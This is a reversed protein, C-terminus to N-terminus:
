RDDPPKGHVGRVVAKAVRLMEEDSCLQRRADFGLGFPNPSISESSVICVLSQARVSIQQVPSPKPEDGEFVPVLASWSYTRFGEDDAREALGSSLWIGNPLRANLIPITCEAVGLFVLWGRRMPAEHAESIPVDLDFVLGWEMLDWRIAAVRADETLSHGLVHRASNM